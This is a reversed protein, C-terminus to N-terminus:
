SRGLALRGWVGFPDHEVLKLRTAAMASLSLRRVTPPPFSGGHLLSVETTFWTFFDPALPRMFVSLELRRRVLWGSLFSLDSCLTSSLRYANHLAARAGSRNGGCFMLFAIQLQLLAGNTEVDLAGGVQRAKRQVASMVALHRDLQVDPASGVSTNTDHIRYYALPGDLFAVRYRALVRIWLEWDSYVLDEDHPGAQVLCERRLIVTQGHIHNAELLSAVADRDRSLDRVAPDGLRNGHEDIETVRGYLLGIGPHAEMYAVQRELKDPYYADDSSLGCWYEGKSRQFAGNATASIGRRNHNPHTFVSVTDPYRSAYTNAIQLSGDTSGDDVIILEVPRYTQNLVSEIATPLFREHNYSPMCVSILPNRAM